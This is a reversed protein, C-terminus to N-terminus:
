GPVPRRRDVVLLAGVGALVAVLGFGAMDYRAWGLSVADSVGIRVERYGHAALWDYPNEAEAPALGLAEDPSLTEGEPSVFVFGYDVGQWSPDDPIPVVQAILWQEKAAGVLGVVAASLAAALVLAPLIRGVLSGVLLGIALAAVARVVVPLGILGIMDARTPAWAARTQQLGEAAAAAFTVALLLLAAPAWLQRILWVWRAPELWWATQATRGELERAVLPVGILLGGAFPLVAMAAFVRGAEEQDVRFLEQLYTGCTPPVASSPGSLWADLCEQPTGVARLHLGVAIALGGVVLGGIAVVASEFAHEKLALRGAVLWRRLRVKM